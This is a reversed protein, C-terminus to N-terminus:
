RSQAPKPYIDDIEAPLVSRVGPQRRLAEILEPTGTVAFSRALHSIRGLKPSPGAMGSVSNLLFVAAAALDSGVSDDLFVHARVNGDDGTQARQQSPSNSSVVADVAPQLHNRVMGSGAKTQAKPPHRRRRANLM